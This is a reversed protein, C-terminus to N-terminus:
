NLSSVYCTYSLLARSAYLPYLASPLTLFVGSESLCLPVSSPLSLWAPHNHTKPLTPVHPRKYTMFSMAAHLPDTSARGPLHLQPLPLPVSCPPAPTSLQSPQANNGVCHCHSVQSLHGARQGEEAGPLPTPLFHFLTHWRKDGKKFVHLLLSVCVPMARHKGTVICNGDAPVATVPWCQGSHTCHM